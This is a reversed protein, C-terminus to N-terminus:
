KMPPVKWRHVEDKFPEFLATAQFGRCQRNLSVPDEIIDLCRGGITLGMEPQARVIDNTSSDMLISKAQLNLQVVRGSGVPM